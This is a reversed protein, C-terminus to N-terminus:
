KSKKAGSGQMVIKLFVSEEPTGRYGESCEFIQMRDNQMLRRSKIEIEDEILYESPLM